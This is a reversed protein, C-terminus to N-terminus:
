RREMVKESMEFISGALEMVYETGQVGSPTPIVVPLGDPYEKICWGGSDTRLLVLDAELDMSDRPIDVSDFDAEVVIVRDFVEMRDVIKFISICDRHQSAILWEFQDDKLTNVNGTVYIWHDRVYGRGPIVTVLTYPLKKGIPSYGSEIDSYFEELAAIAADYSSYNKGNFKYTFCGVSFVLMCFALVSLTYRGAIRM